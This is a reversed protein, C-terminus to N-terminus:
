VEYGNIIKEIGSWSKKIRHDTVRDQPFNYTRIKEVRQAKGIQSRRNTDVKSTEEEEKKQKLKAALISLANEKNQPLTRESM